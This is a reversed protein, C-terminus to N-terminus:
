ALVYMVERIEKGCIENVQLEDTCNFGNKEYFKRARINDELVWLLIKDYNRKHLNEVCADMLLKGYGKSFYEPLLYISVIEGYDAFKEWRSKCICATGIYKGNDILVFDSFGSQQFNSAWEGRPISNLFADPIIDKYAAKWSKEYIDSIEFRSDSENAYRIEM